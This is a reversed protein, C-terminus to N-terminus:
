AVLELEGYESLRYKTNALVNKGDVYYPRKIRKDELPKRYELVILGGVGAEAEGGIGVIATGYAGAAASGYDGAIAVGLAGARARGYSGVRATGYDFVVAEGYKQAVALGAYGSHARGWQGAVTVGDEKAHARGHDGARALGSAGAQAYGRFGAAAVEREGARVEGSIVPTNAPAYAQLIDVAEALGGRYVAEGQSTEVVWDGLSRLSGEKVRLIYWVGTLNGMGTLSEVKPEATSAGWLLGAVPDAGPPDQTLVLLEGAEPRCAALTKPDIM